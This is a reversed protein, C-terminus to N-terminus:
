QEDGMIIIIGTIRLYVLTFMRFDAQCHQKWFPSVSLFDYSCELGSEVVEWLTKKLVQWM